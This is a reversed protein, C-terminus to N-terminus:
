GAISRQSRSYDNLSVHDFWEAPAMQVSRLSATELHAAYRPEAFYNILISSRHAGTPNLSAAHLLDADFVLIDGARGALQVAMSEDAADFDPESQVPRHSGPIWRTAGNDAGYDDFYAIAIVTDGPRQACMDRHLGQHGGAALPERGEVQALFFREGILEDVVALLGPLRCVSRINPDLDVLSHCWVWGRPVPWQDSAKVVADFADRLGDLWQVSIAGRLVACGDQHLQHRDAVFEQSKATRHWGGSEVRSSCLRWGHM